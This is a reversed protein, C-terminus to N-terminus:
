WPGVDAVQFVLSQTNDAVGLLPLHPGLFGDETMITM